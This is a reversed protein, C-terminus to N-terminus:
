PRLPAAPTIGAKVSRALKTDAVDYSWSGLAPSPRDARKFLFTEDRESSLRKVMGTLGYVEAVSAEADEIAVLPEAEGPLTGGQRQILTVAWKESNWYFGQRVAEGGTYRFM